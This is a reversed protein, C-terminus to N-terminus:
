GASAPDMITEIASVQNCPFGGLRAHERIIEADEALYVCYLKDGTVYSQVWQIDTGLEHLVNLSKRAVQRYEAPSMRGAGPLEREILFKRM